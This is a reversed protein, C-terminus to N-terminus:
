QSVEEFLEPLGQDVSVGDLTLETASAHGRHVQGAVELVVARDGDLHQPRIDCRPEPRLPEQALDLEGCRQIM